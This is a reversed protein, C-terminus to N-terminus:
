TKILNLKKFSVIYMPTVYLVFLLVSLLVFYGELGFDNLVKIKFPIGIFTLAIYIILQVFFVSISNLYTVLINGIAYMMFVLGTLIFMRNSFFISEDRIWLRLIENGFLLMSLSLILMIVFVGLFTQNLIKKIKSFQKKHSAETLMPWLVSTIIMVTTLGLDFPRKIIEYDKLAEFSGYVSILYTDLTRSFFFFISGLFFYFSKKLLGPILNENLVKSKEFYDKKVIFFYYIINIFNTALIVLYYYFILDLISYQYSVLVYIVIIQLIKQIIEFFHFRINDLFGFQIKQILTTPLVLCFLCTFKLYNSNILTVLNKSFKDELVELGFTYFVIILIIISCLSIVSLFKFSQIIITKLKNLYNNNRYLVIENILIHGIGLDLFGYITIFQTVISFLAFEEADYNNIILPIIILINVIGLLRAIFSLSFSGVFHYNITKLYKM